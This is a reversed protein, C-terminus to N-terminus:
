VIYGLCLTCYFHQIVNVKRTAVKWFPQYGRVTIVLAFQVSSSLCNWVVKGRVTAQWEGRFVFRGRERAYVAWTQMGENTINIVRCAESREKRKMVM